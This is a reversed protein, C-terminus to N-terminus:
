GQAEAAAEKGKIDALKKEADATEKKKQAVAKEAQAIQDDMAGEELSKNKKERIAKVKDDSKLAKKLAEKMKEGSSKKPTENMDRQAQVYDDSNYMRDIPALNNNRPAIGPEKVAIKSILEAYDELVDYNELVDKIKKIAEKSITTADPETYAVIVDEVEQYLDEKGWDAVIVDLLDYLGNVVPFNPDNHHENVKAEDKINGLIDSIEKVSYGYGDLINVIDKLSSAKMIKDRADLVEKEADKDGEEKASRLHISLAARAKDKKSQSIGAAEKVKAENQTRKCYSHHVKSRTGTEPDVKICDDGDKVFDYKWPENFDTAENVISEGFMGVFDGQYENGPKGLMATAFDKKVKEEGKAIFNFLNKANLNYDDIFKQVISDRTGTLQAIEKAEKGTVENVKKQALKERIIEEIGEKITKFSGTVGKDKFESVGKPKKTGAEKKGLDVKVNSKPSKIAEKKLYGDAKRGKMEAKLNPELKKGEIEIEKYCETDDIKQGAYLRTYYNADKTINKLVKKQALLVEEETLDTRVPNTAMGLEYDMGKSYEYPNVMDITKSIIEVEGYKKGDAENIIGKNKLIKVADEYSTLNNIWPLHADRRVEYLFKQNSMSGSKHKKYLEKTTM